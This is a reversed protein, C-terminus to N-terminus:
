EIIGGYFKSKTEKIREPSAVKEAIAFSFAAATGAGRSTILNNDVVVIDHLITAGILREEYGPFCTAKKGKLIGLDGLISPAACIAAIIKNNNFYYLIVDKLPSFSALNNTGPQGGPLILLDGEYLNCEEWCFDTLLSVEHSSCVEKSSSISVTKLDVGMERLLAITYTAEMEEFGDALILFVKM